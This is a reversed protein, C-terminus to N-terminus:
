GKGGSMAPQSAPAAPANPLEEAQGVWDKGLLRRVEPNAYEHPGRLVTPIPHYNYHPPPSPCHTWELTTCEWPNAEAKEGAFVSKFFNIIFFIQSVGLAFAAWSTYRNLTLLHQLYTYQYPDYLRRQQGSFGAV